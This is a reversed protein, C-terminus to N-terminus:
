WHMFIPTGRQYEVIKRGNLWHEIRGDPYVRIRGENWTRPIDQIKLSPILDYLSGLTRNGVVGEKADPHRADDLIQYELGIASGSSLYKEDVFYKWEATPAKQLSLILRLNLRVLNENTVIDGGNTSEGGGSPLVSLTGDKIEWGKEPFSQKHAGALRYHNNWGM